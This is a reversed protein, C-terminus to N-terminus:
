SPPSRDPTSDDARVRLDVDRLQRTLTACPSRWQRSADSRASPCGSAAFRSSQTLRAVDPSPTAASPRRFEREAESGDTTITPTRVSVGGKNRWSVSRGSGGVGTVYSTVDRSTCPSDRLVARATDATMAARDPPSTTASAANYSAGQARRPDCSSTPRDATSRHPLVLGLNHLVIVRSFDV